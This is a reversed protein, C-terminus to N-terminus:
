VWHFMYWSVINWTSWDRVKALAEMKKAYQKAIDVEDICIYDKDTIEWLLNFCRKEIKLSFDKFNEKEFFHKIKETQKDVKKYKKLTLNKMVTTRFSIISWFFDKFFIKEWKTTNRLIYKYEQNIMKQIEKM